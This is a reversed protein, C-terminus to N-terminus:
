EAAGLGWRGLCRYSAGAADLHSQVLVFDRVPWDIPPQPPPTAANRANRLLTVHANFPSAELPFSAAALRTHLETALAALASPPSASEIWALHKRPLGRLRDLRLTFAPIRVAAAVAALAEIRQPAVTGIFALTLHLTERRMRRGGFADHATTAVRVLKDTIADDPWLAFFVRAPAAAAEDPM